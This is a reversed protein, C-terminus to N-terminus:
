VVGAQFSTVICLIVYERMHWVVALSFIAGPNWSCFSNLNLHVLMWPSELLAPSLDFAFCAEGLSKLSADSYFPEQSFQLFCHLLGIGSSM